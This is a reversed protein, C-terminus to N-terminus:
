GPQRKGYCNFRCCLVEGMAPSLSVFVVAPAAGCLPPPLQNHVELEITERMDPQSM